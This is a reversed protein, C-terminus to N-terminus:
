WPCKGPGMICVHFDIVDFVGLLYLALALGGIWTLFKKM